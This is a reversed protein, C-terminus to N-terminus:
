QRAAGAAETIAQGTGAARYVPTGICSTYALEIVGDRKAIRFAASTAARGYCHSFTVPAIMQNGADAAAKIAELARATNPSM